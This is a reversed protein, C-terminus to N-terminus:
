VIIFTDAATPAETVATFTLRKTAGVYDTIATAQGTLVGSTWILTRGNYHDDTVETLDTTMATTSLTGAIAAGTVITGAAAKFAALVATSGGIQTVNVPQTATQVDFAALVKEVYAPACGSCTVALVVRDVGTVFAADPWDIRYLGPANTADVEYGKNDSHAASASALATLDNKVAAAGARTYTADINTITLGTEPQGTVSDVLNVYTTVDTAGKTISM